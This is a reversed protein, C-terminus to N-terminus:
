LSIDTIMVMVFMETIMIMTIVIADYLDISQQKLADGGLALNDMLEDTAVDEQPSGQYENDDDDDKHALHDDDNYDIEDTAVDEVFTQFLKM